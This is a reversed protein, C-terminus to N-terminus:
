CIKNIPKNLLFQSINAATIVVLKQRAERSIWACHPTLILNPIDKALLPNDPSPPEQSLVDLGAGAIKNHRLAFELATEDVLGGRACNILLANPKMLSLAEADILHHTSPNLPCHLSVIDAEPLLTKLPKRIIGGDLLTDAEGPKCSTSIQMGFANAIAAVGKGLEGWGVITLNKGHIEQVEHDLLCFFESESWKGDSVDQRYNQLRTALSLILAFTHQVVSHTGYRTANTVTIGLAKAATIDINNTGTALVSVLKITPVARLITEDLVVKNTLVIDADGIHELTKDAPTNPYRVWHDLQSYIPSLDLDDPHLSDEDLIVGRM